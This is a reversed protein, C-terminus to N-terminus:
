SVRPLYITFTTGNGLQSNFQIHGGSQKVIGYVISLGLGTGKGKDKTTFFPEFIHSQVEPSMGTGTDSVSLVVWSGPPITSPERMPTEAVDTRATGITLKGGEPMADSANIVLNTIVQEIQGPDVKVQGVAHDLLTVLEVDRRIAHRLLKEVNTIIGNLDVVELHLEQRRSFTLLKRALVGAREGAGKIQELNGQLPHNPPLERRSLDTYGSIVTLLNNFDHVIGGAFRGLADMRDVHRAHEEFRKGESIDRFVTQFTPRGSVDILRVRVHVDRIDGQKTRHRTEFDDWGDRLIKEIHRKIEEPKEAVEYDSIRLRAFEERSYGLQQHASDNFVLPLATEPDIILIGDPSQDFLTQYLKESQRIKEELMHKERWHNAEEEVREKSRHGKYIATSSLGVTAAVIGLLWLMGKHEEKEFAAVEDYPVNLAVIWSRNAFEIPQFAALKKPRGKLQYDVTGQKRKLMREVYDFSSHCPDCSADRQHVNRGVMEPHESQFLLTGDNNMVWAEEPKVKPSIRALQDAFLEKLDVTMSLAGLFRGTPSSYESDAPQEYLPVALLFQAFSGPDKSSAVDRQTWDRRIFSSVFVKGKSEKKTAWDFFDYQAADLGVAQPTTSFVIQGNEDYRSMESVYMARFRKFFDEIEGAGAEGNQHQLSARSSLAKLDESRVGLYVEAQHALQRAILLQQENFQALVREEALRHLDFAFYFVAGLIAVTLLAIVSASCLFSNFNSSQCIFGWGLRRSM